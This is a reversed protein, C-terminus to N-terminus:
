YMFVFISRGDRPSYLMSFVCCVMPIGRGSVKAVQEMALYAMIWGTQDPFPWIRVMGPLQSPDPRETRPVPLNRGAPRFGATKAPSRPQRYSRSETVPFLIHGMKRLALSPYKQIQILHM